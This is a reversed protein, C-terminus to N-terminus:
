LSQKGSVSDLFHVLAHLKHLASTCICQIKVTGNVCKCTYSYIRVKFISCLYWESSAAMDVTEITVEFPVSSPQSLAIVLSVTGDDEM